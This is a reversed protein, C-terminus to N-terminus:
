EKKKSKEEKLNTSNKQFAGNAAHEGTSAVVEKTTKRMKKAGTKVTTDNATSVQEGSYQM